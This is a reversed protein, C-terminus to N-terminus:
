AKTAPKSRYEQLRQTIKIMMAVIPSSLTAGLIGALSAGVMTSGFSVIPHLDLADETFKTQLLPQIANQVVLIVALVILAETVGGSGLGILFAFAGSFIAGLYPIYSTVVTVLAVSFALPLGLFVMTLGILFGAVVATATLVYFYQRMSWVTDEIVGSGVDDPVGLHGSIWESIKKWDKLLFYLFFVSVLTGVIFATISSFAGGLFSGLGTLLGGTLDELDEVSIGLADSVGLSRLWDAFAVLGAEIQRGIEDAQDVIGNVTILVTVYGLAVLGVLVLGASVSRPMFRAGFDVLPVFLIGLVSAVILPVFLGSLSSMVAYVLAFALAMGVLAWAGRGAAVWASSGSRDTLGPSTSGRQTDHSRGSNTSDTM